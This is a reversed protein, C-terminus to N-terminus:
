VKTFSYMKPRLAVFEVIPDGNCEDKFYGIEGAHPDSGGLGSPHDAPIAGFDFADRVIPNEHLATNLDEVFFQLFFSDTDTYLMRLRDKFNEKLLAYFRYMKLKSWELVSFGHQFPKNINAILKRMEVGILSEDFARWDICHPKESLKKAKVMDNLLRIDSRRAVNEITKGYIANNLLKYFDKLTPDNQFLKRQESNQAIYPKYYPSASFRIARHVKTLLMGRDLYFQLLQGLVTYKRKQLFSCVLKKSYPCASAFYKARLAHQKESIMSADIMMTEPAIIYDDDRDHLEAPYELDVEFIYQQPNKLRDAFLRDAQEATIRGNEVDDMLHQFNLPQRVVSFYKNRSDITQLAVFADLCEQESLWEFDGLPMDQSLAWGYLNNADVYMIYSTPLLPDYLAGMLKNNARAYRVSAHCIGGRISPQIMRYMEPDTILKIPSNIFKLAASWSLSPASVYYVPDLQYESLSTQRFKEFVDALLCVDSLLYLEMYDKITNCGFAMWVHQAHAYEQELCEAEKMRNYFQDRGPLFPEDLREIGSLYDYCFGGKREVLDVAANPYQEAFVAHLHTFYQRGSRQLSCVLQELSSNLFQLSDRFVIHKGWQVQLYKEMNQGIVKIDRDQYAKFASVILHSDYGRFNHFFVPIQYRVPRNLNCVNHAAGLYHGTIHDHDRVKPNNPNEFPHHCIYCQNANIHQSWQERTLEKMPINKRLYEICTSEWQILKELFHSLANPGTFIVRLNNMEPVTSVLIAAASCVEHQQLFHTAKRQRDIPKLISEFDAYIVFPARSSNRFDRFKIEDFGSGPSPLMHVVSMFDERTCLRQHREFTSQTSFHGLCRICIFQQHDHKTLDFFLKPISVIPAYHENWYLLNATRPYNKESIFLPHRAKGEDDFFSFVNINISLEDEYQHVDHPSIPYPLNALGNREFMEERYHFLRELHRGQINEM